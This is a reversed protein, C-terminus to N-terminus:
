DLLAAMRAVGVIGTVHRHIADELPFYSRILTGTPSPLARPRGAEKEVIRIDDASHVSSLMCVKM